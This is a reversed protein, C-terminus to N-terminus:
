FCALFPKSVVYGSLSFRNFQTHQAAKLVSLVVILTLVYHKGEGLALLFHIIGAEGLQGGARFELYTM